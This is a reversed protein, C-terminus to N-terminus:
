AVSVSNSILVVYAVKVFTRVEHPVVWADELSIADVEVGFSFHEFTQEHHVVLTDVYPGVAESGDNKDANQDKECSSQFVMRQNLFKFSQLSFYIALQLFVIRRKCVDTSFSHYTLFFQSLQMRQLVTQQTLIFLHQVFKMLITLFKNSKYLFLKLPYLLCDSIVKLLSYPLKLHYFYLVLLFYRGMDDCLNLMVYIASKEIFKGIM